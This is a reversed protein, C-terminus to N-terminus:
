MDSAMCRILIHKLADNFIVNGEKRTTSHVFLKTEICERNFRADM